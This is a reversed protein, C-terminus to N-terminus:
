SARALLDRAIVKLALTEEAGEFISLVRADVFLRGAVTEEAYGMGGHMQMADRTIWEATRCAFFKTLSAERGDAGADLRRAVAYSFQRSATLWAAMRAFQVSTLPYDAIPRGFVRRGTAYRMAENFAAHMVGNARAATQLRGGVMGTMTLYFGRGEGQAEGILADAPVIFEEFFLEFSHMGRYGLTPIARGILRGGLPSQYEFQHGAFPPKEVLLVSLGKHGLSANADTRTVVLLVDARGAFTCWTKTGDLQWGSSVRTGRFKLNAVDSGHDPETISIACLKEGSALAPLWRSQQDATGGALLARAMIEPRTILSGAAGLSAQSLAETVVLMAITDSCDDPQLGGFRQPISVGFLGLAAADRLLEAPIDLDGRHISQAHPLVSESAFKSFADGMLEHDHDLLSPPLVGHRAVLARGIAALVSSSQAAALAPDAAPAFALVDSLALGFETPRASWRTCCRQLAEAAFLNALPLSLEDTAGMAYALVADAAALEAACWALEYCPLQLEDLKVAALDGDRGLAQSRLFSASGNLVVRAAAVRAAAASM